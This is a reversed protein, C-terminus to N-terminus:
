IELRSRQRSAIRVAPMKVEEEADWVLAAVYENLREIEPV